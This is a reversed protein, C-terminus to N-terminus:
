AGTVADARERACKMADPGNKHRHDCVNDPSGSWAVWMWGWPLRCERKIGRPVLKKNDEDTM